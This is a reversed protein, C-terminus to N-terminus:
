LIALFFHPNTLSGRGHPEDRTGRVRSRSRRADTNTRLRSVLLKHIAFRAADPVRVPVVGHISASHCFGRNTM